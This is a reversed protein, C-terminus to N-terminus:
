LCVSSDTRSGGVHDVRRAHEHRGFEARVGDAELRYTVFGVPHDHGNGSADGRNDADPHSPQYKMVPPAQDEYIRDVRVGPAQNKQRATLIKNFASDLSQAAFIAEKRRFPGGQGTRTTNVNALNGSILNMRLRQASLGSSSTQISNFFDM